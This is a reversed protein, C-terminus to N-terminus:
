SDEDTVLWDTKFDQGIMLTAAIGVAIILVVLVV